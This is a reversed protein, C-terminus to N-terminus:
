RPPFMKLTADVAYGDQRKLTRCTEVKAIDQASNLRSQFEYAARLDRAYAVVRMRDVSLQVVGEIRVGSVIIRSLARKWDAPVAAQAIASNEAVDISLSMKQEGANRLTRANRDLEFSVLYGMRVPVSKRIVRDGCTVVLAHDGVPLSNIIVDSGSVTGGFNDASATCGQANRVEIGGTQPRKLLRRLGLSSVRLETSHASSIAVDFTNEGGNASRITVKRDGEPVQLVIGGPNTVGYHAGDILVDLGADSVIVLEGNVTRQSAPFLLFLVLFFTTM